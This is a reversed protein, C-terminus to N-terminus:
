FVGYYFDFSERLGNNTPSNYKWGLRNGSVYFRPYDYTSGTVGSAYRKLYIQKPLVWANVNELFVDNTVFGAEFGTSGEGLYRCIRDTIDVVVNGNKDFVQLGADVIRVTGQAKEGDKVYIVKECDRLTPPEAITPTFSFHNEQKTDGTAGQTLPPRNLNNRKRRNDFLYWVISILLLAGIYIM